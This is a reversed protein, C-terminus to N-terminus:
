FCASLNKKMFQSSLDATLVFIFKNTYNLLQHASPVHYGEIFLPDCDLGKLLTRLFQTKQWLSQNEFM